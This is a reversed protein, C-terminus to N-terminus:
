VAGVFRLVVKEEAVGPGVLYATLEEDRQPVYVVKEDAIRNKVAPLRRLLTKHGAYWLARRGIALVWQVAPDHGADVLHGRATGLDQGVRIGIGRGHDDLRQQVVQAVPVDPAATAAKPLALMVCVLRGRIGREVIDQDTQELQEGGKGREDGLHHVAVQYARHLGLGKLAHMM